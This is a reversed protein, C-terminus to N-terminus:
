NIQMAKRQEVTMLSSIHFYHYATYKSSLKYVLQVIGSGEEPAESVLGISWYGKGTRCNISALFGLSVHGHNIARNYATKLSKKTLCRIADEPIFFRANDPTIKMGKSYLEDRKEQTMDEVGAFANNVIFLNILAILLIKM